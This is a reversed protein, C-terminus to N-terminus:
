EPEIELKTLTLDVRGKTMKSTAEVIGAIAGDAERKLGDEIRAWFKKLRKPDNTKAAAEMIRGYRRLKADVVHKPLASAFVRALLMPRARQANQALHDEGVKLAGVLHAWFDFAYEGAAVAERIDEDDSIARALALKETSLDAGVEVETEM